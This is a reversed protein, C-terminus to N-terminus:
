DAMEEYILGVLFNNRESINWLYFYFILLVGYSLSSFLMGSAATM